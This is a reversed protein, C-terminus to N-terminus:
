ALRGVLTELDAGWDKQVGKVIIFICMGISAILWFIMLGMSLGDSLEIVQKGNKSFGQSKRNM